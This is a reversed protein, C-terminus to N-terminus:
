LRYSALPAFGFPVKETLVTQHERCALVYTPAAPATLSLSKTIRRAGKFGWIGELGDQTRVCFCM